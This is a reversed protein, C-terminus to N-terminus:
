YIQMRPRLTTSLAMGCFHRRIYEISAFVMLSSNGVTKLVVALENASNCRKYTCMDYIHQDMISSHRQNMLICRKDTM